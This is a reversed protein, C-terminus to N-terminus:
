EYRLATNPDIRCARRVPFYAACVAIFALTVVALVLTATDTPTINFLLSALFRTLGFAALLGIALGGITLIATRGLVTKLVNASRAGLAMRIGVEHTRVTVSYSIMSYIGASALLVALGAFLGLLLMSTRRLSVSEVALDDMPRVRDVPLDKDVTWVAARVASVIQAGEGTSRVVAAFFPWSVQYAPRYVEIPSETGAGQHRVDGVVGVVERPEPQRLDGVNLIRGIPDADPWLERALKDNIIVVDQSGQRDRDDFFRGKKLPINMARFYDPTIVRYQVMQPQGRGAPDEPKFYPRRADMGSLPLSSIFAASEVGRIDRIRSLMQDLSSATRPLGSYRNPPFQLVFSLVHHPQFGLVQSQLKLFSRLLLGSGVLLLLSLAVQGVILISRLRIAFLRDTTGRGGARLDEQSPIVGRFAPIAGFILSVFAATLAAFCLVPWDLWAEPRQPLPLTALQARFLESLIAVSWYAFLIGLAASCASLVFGQTLYQRLLRWKGAGLAVRVAIERESASARALLMNAVNGCAILLMFFVAAQLVWLALQVNGVYTQRIPELEASTHGNTDPHERASQQALLNMQSQAEPLSVDPKLRAVVQFVHLAFNQDLGKPFSLPTWADVTATPHAFEQPMVGIVIYSNGDLRIMRDLINADGGFKSKWLHHSLVVVHDHGPQGDEPSFTRGIFSRAGLVSFFNSSLQYAVLSQPDGSDTLTYAADWSYGMEDFAHNRAQWDSYDGGTVKDRRGRETNREWITVIRDANDYPLARLLVARVVSFIATNAGIGLALTLIVSVTFAPTRRMVRFAYQLDQRLEDFFSFGRAERCDDKVKEMGGFEVRARRCAEERPVGDRVLDDVYTELHFRLEDDMGAEFKRRHFLVAAFSRLRGPLKM